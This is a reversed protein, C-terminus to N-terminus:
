LQTRCGGVAGFQDNMPVVRLNANRDYYLSLYSTEYSKPDRRYAPTERRRLRRVEPPDVRGVTTDEHHQRQEPAPPEIACTGVRRVDYSRRQTDDAHGHDHVPRASAYLRFDELTHTLTLARSTNCVRGRGPPSNGGRSRVGATGARCRYCGARVGCVGNVYKMVPDEYPAVRSGVVARRWHRASTKTM